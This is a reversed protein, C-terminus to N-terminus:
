SFAESVDDFSSLLLGPRCLRRGAPDLGLCPGAGLGLDRPVDVIATAGGGSTGGRSRLRSRNRSGRSGPELFPLGIDPGPWARRFPIPCLCLCLLGVECLRSFLHRLYAAVCLGPNIQRDGALRRRVRVVLVPDM